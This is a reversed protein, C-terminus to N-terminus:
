PTRFSLDYNFMGPLPFGCPWCLKFSFPLGQDIGTEQLSFILCTAGVAITTDMYSNDSVATEEPEQFRVRREARRRDGVVPCEPPKRRLISPPCKCGGMQEKGHM